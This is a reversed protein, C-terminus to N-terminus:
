HRAHESYLSVLTDVDKSDFCSLWRRALPALPM